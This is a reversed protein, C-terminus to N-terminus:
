RIPLKKRIWEITDNVPKERGIENYIEHYFGDYFKLTKDSFTILEFISSSGEPDTLMDDSGHLMLVPTNLRLAIQFTEDMASTIETFWRATVKTHVLPDNRYARVVEKDHSLHNPNLGNSMGLSPIRNSLFIGLRKKWEPVRARIRLLPGSTILGSINAPNKITFNMAILGGMSHGLIFLPRSFRKLLMQKFNDVDFLYENFSMIHGRKGESKGHGRLDFSFVSFGARNFDGALM